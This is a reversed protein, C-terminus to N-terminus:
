NASLGEFGYNHFDPNSGANVDTHGDNYQDCWSLYSGGLTDLIYNKKEEAFEKGKVYGKSSDYNGYEGVQVTLGANSIVNLEKQIDQADYIHFSGILHNANGGNKEKFSEFTSPEFVSPGNTGAGQAAWGGDEIAIFGDFGQERALQVLYAYENVWDKYEQSDESAGGLGNENALDLIVNRRDKYRSSLNIVSNKVSEYQNGFGGNQNKTRPNLQIIKNTREAEDVAVDLVKVNEEWNDVSFGLRLWGGAVAAVVKRVNSESDVGIHGGANYGPYFIANTGTHDGDWQPYWTKLDDNPVSRKAFATSEESSVPLAFALPITLLTTYSLLMSLSITAITSSGVPNLYKLDELLGQM